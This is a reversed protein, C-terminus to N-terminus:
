YDLEDLGNYVCDILINGQNDTILCPSEDGFYDHELLYVARGEHMKGDIVHWTGVHGTVKIGSQGLYYIASM